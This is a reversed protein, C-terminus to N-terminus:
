KQPQKSTFVHNGYGKEVIQQARLQYTSLDSPTNAALGDVYRNFMCFMAAILVTDHIDKDTAGHTKATEIQGPTVYKGGKQVSGAITLLAKLKESIDANMYDQKVQNVLEENGNLYCAAIAGHSQHCYFCDNLYSVHAAIMEREAMSLGENTRLLLNALDGIPSATEPSFELLARIGPLDKNVNIHPM